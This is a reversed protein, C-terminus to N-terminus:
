RGTKGFFHLFVVVVGVVLQIGLLPGLDNHGKESNGKKKQTHHKDLIWVAPVKDSVQDESSRYVAKERGITIKIDQASFGKKIQINVNIVFLDPIFQTGELPWRIKSSRGQFSNFIIAVVDCKNQFIVTLFKKIHSLDELYMLPCLQYKPNRLKLFKAPSVLRESRKM